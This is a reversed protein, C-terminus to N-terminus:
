RAPAASGHRSPAADAGDAYRLETTDVSEDWDRVYVAMCWRAYLWLGALVILLLTFGGM